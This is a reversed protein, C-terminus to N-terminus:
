FLRSKILAWVEVQEVEFEEGSALCPNDYTTVPRSSGKGM